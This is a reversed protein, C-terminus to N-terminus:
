VDYYRWTRVFLEQNDPMWKYLEIVNHDPQSKMKIERSESIGIALYRLIDDANTAALLSDSNSQRM